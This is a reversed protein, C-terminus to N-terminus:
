YVEFQIDYLALDIHGYSNQEGNPWKVVYILNHSGTNKNNIIVGVMQKNRNFGQYKYQSDIRIKVRTGKTYKM